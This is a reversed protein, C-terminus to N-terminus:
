RDDDGDRETAGDRGRGGPLRGRWGAVVIWASAAMWALGAVTLTLSEHPTCRDNLSCAESVLVSGLVSLVAFSLVLYALTVVARRIRSPSGAPELEDAGREWAVDTARARDLDHIRVTTDTVRDHLAQHRRTFAMLLFSPLGFASKLAFRAFARAFGPRGGTREHVVRLNAIRHGLTGGHWAVLLPEYLLLLAAIAAVGLRGTGPVGETVEVFAVIAILGAVLVVSDVVLARFRAAFSAFAARDDDPAAIGSSVVALGLGPTGHVCDGLPAM